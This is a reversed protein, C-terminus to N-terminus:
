VSNGRCLSRRLCSAPVSEPPSGCTSAIPRAKPAGLSNISSSGLRPNAGIMTASMKRVMPSCQAGGDDRHQQDLLVRLGGQLDGVAGVDHFEALEDQGSRGLVDRGVLADGRAIEAELVLARAPDLDAAM